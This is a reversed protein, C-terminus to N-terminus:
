SSPELAAQRMCDVRHGEEDTTGCWPCFAVDASLYPTEAWEVHNLAARLRENKAEAAKRLKVQHIVGERQQTAWLVCRTPDNHFESGGPTLSELHRMLRENEAELAAIRQKAHSPHEVADIMLAAIKDM